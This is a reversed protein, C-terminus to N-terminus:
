LEASDSMNQIIQMNNAHDRNQRVSLHGVLQDAAAQAPSHWEVSQVREESRQIIAKQRKSSEKLKEIDANMRTVRPRLSHVMGQAVADLKQQFEVGDIIGDGPM